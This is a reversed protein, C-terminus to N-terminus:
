RDMSTVLWSQWWRTIPSAEHGHLMPFVSNPHRAVVNLTRARRVYSGKPPLTPQSQCFIVLAASRGALPINSPKRLLYLECLDATGGMVMKLANLGSRGEKAVNLYWRTHQM